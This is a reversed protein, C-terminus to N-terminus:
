THCHQAGGRHVQELWPAPKARVDLNVSCVGNSVLSGSLELNQRRQVTNINELLATNTLVIDPNKFGADNLLEGQEPVGAAVRGPDIKYKFVSGTPQGAFCDAVSDVANTQYQQKKFKLKM